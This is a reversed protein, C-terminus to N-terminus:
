EHGYWSLLKSKVSALLAKSLNRASYRDAIDGPTELLPSTRPLFRKDLRKLKSETMAIDQEDGHLIKVSENGGIFFDFPLRLNYEPPLIYERLDSDYLAERFAPQDNPPPSYNNLHRRYRHLWSRFFDYLKNNNRYLIVGTNPQTYADPIGGIDIRGNM